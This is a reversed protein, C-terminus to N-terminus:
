LSYNYCAVGEVQKFGEQIYLAQARENEGNVCLITRRYHHDAAFQLSVRLLIRGLGQGQYEPLVAVPGINMIPADEYEDDAGCVVGVPKDHHFLLIMGGELYDAKETMKTVMEPTIPTESGKLKAFAANLVTVWAEEDGFQFPRITYGDALSFSPVPIAERILLYTYRELDFQIDEM